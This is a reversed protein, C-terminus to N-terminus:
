TPDNQGYNFGYNNGYGQLNFFIAVAGGQISELGDRVAFARCVARRHGGFAEYPIVVSTAGTPPLEQILTTGDAEYIRVITNQGPEPTVSPDEWALPFQDETMRNRTSWTMTVSVPRVTGTIEPGGNAVGDLRVNAPRFPRYPRDSPTTLYVPSDDTPLVGLSTWPCLRYTIPSGAIRNGTTDVARFTQDLYWVPTGVQWQRPITDWIGRSLTIVGATVDTVLVIECGDDADTGIYLFSGAEPANPGLLAGLEAQTVTSTAEFALVATTTSRTTQSLTSIQFLETAGTAITSPTYVDFQGADSQLSNGFLAPVTAPYQDDAVLASQGAAVLAPYPITPFSVYDLPAAEQNPNQWTSAPPTSYATQELAFIDEMLTAKVGMSGPKGYQVKGVRMILQNIGDEPWTFKVAEGPLLDWADRNCEVDCTFLPAAASRIDRAGLEAALDARRVGYYERPDSVIGGQVAINAQDQFTVTEEKESEPNTWTVVIENITEAWAKRQRNTAKCNSPDLVRLTAVDYDPRILKLQLLGTAPNVFLAAQIHDLVETIFDEIATQEFWGMSLGFNDAFLTSGAAEFSGVDIITSPAGMGWDTNTLCEYIIHAPNADPEHDPVQIFAETSTLGVPRRSVTFWTPPLYPNNQSWVFGRDGGHFFVSTIGRFGPCTAATLGLKGALEESLVQDPAGPLLTATGFLGGEKKDGGFLDKRDISIDTQATEDGDWALKEKTYIAKLADVPGHCIGYHISMFYTIVRYAEGAGKSGM